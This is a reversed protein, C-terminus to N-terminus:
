TLGATMNETSNMQAPKEAVILYIYDKIGYKTIM